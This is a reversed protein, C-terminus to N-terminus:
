LIEILRGDDIYKQIIDSNNITEQKEGTPAIYWATNKENWEVIGEDYALTVQDQPTLFDLYVTKVIKYRKM